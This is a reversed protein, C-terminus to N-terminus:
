VVAEISRSSWERLRQPTMEIGQELRVQMGQALASIVTLPQNLEHAMGAAMEGLAILRSSQLLSQEARKRETLDRLRRHAEAMVQGFRELVRIDAENFAEETDSNVTLAGAAFPIDVVSNRELELRDGCALIQARNRRYVPAQTRMARQLSLPLHDIEEGKRPHGPAIHYSLFTGNERDILNIGCGTYRMLGSLERHFCDLLGLWDAESEMQLIENRVRQLALNVQNAEEAQRRETIDAVAWVRLERGGYPTARDRVEVPLVSGDKRIATYQSPDGDEASGHRTALERSEPAVLDMVEMGLMEERGYGMMEFLQDNVDIIVGGDTVAIGELAAEALRRNREESERLAALDRVRQVGESLVEAVEQLLKLDGESFADPQDSSVALTGGSFPADVVSRVPHGLTKDIQAAEGYVDERSLDKRYAVSGERWIRLVVDAGREPGAQVWAHGAASYFHVSPAEGTADVLNIGCDRFTVGAHRLSDGVVSLVNELDGEETMRWVQERVRSVGERRREARDRESIGSQVARYLRAHELAIAVQDLLPQMADIRRLTGAQEEVPSGTALVALVRDGCKVPIFYAVSGEHVVPTTGTLREDWEVAVQMEGSRATEALIDVSDLPYRRGVHSSPEVRSARDSSDRVYSTMVEVYGEEEDVLAVALSRFVGTGTIARGLGDVIQDPDLTAAMLLAVEHFASLQRADEGPVESLRSASELEAVRRRLGKLEEELQARTRTDNRM